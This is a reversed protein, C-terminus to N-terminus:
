PHLMTNRTAGDTHSQLSLNWTNSRTCVISPKPLMTTIHQPHSKGTNNTHVQANHSFTSFSESTWCSLSEEM